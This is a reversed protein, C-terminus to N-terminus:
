NSRFHSPTHGTYQKFARRFVRPSSFNLYASIEEVTMDCQRLLEISHKIKKKTIYEKLNMGVKNSFLHSLYSESYNLSTALSHISTITLFESDIYRLIKYIAHSSNKKTSRSLLFSNDQPADLIRIITTILQTIFTNIMEKSFSDNLYIEQILMESLRKIYGNDNLTFFNVNSTLKQFVHITDNEPNPIFGICVYRFNKEDSAIIKHRLGKKIFHMQGEAITHSSDDSLIVASGSICYTIEDCWQVHEPFETGKGLSVEAIQLIKGIDLNFEAEDFISEFNYVRNDFDM